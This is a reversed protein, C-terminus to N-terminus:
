YGGEALLSQIYASDPQLIEWEGNSEEVLSQQISDIFHGFAATDLKKTSGIGFRAKYYEKLINTQMAWPKIGDPMFGTENYFRVLAVLIAMLFRNQQNTRQTKHPKIEVDIGNKAVPVVLAIQNMAWQQIDTTKTSNRFFM